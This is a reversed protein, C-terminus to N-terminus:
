EYIKTIRNEPANPYKLCIIQANVEMRNLLNESISYTHPSINFVYASGPLYIITHLKHGQTSVKRFVTISDDEYYKFSMHPQPPPCPIM